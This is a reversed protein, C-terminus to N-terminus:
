SQKANYTILVVTIDFCIKILIYVGLQAIERSSRDLDSVIIFFIIFQLIEAVAFLTVWLFTLNTNSSLFIKVTTLM